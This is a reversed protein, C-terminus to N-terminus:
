GILVLRRLSQFCDLSLRPQLSPRRVIALRTLFDAEVHKKLKLQFSYCVLQATGKECLWHCVTLLGPSTNCLLYRSHIFGRSKCTNILQCQQQKKRLLLGLHTVSAVFFLSFSSAHTHTHNHTCAADAMHTINHTNM